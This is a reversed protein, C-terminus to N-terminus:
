ISTREMVFTQAHRTAEPATLTLRYVSGPFNRQMRADTVPIEEWACALAPDFRLTLKGSRVAGPASVPQERLMFVWTVPLAQALAVTDCLLLGDAWRMERTLERVGAEPPYAEAIDMRAGQADLHVDRARYRAGCPQEWAGILPVNHNRSRTNLLTYRTADNFTRATYVMNGLDILQPEGDIYVLCTGVDNHNHNEANHGGKIAAYMGAREQAWVQLDPLLVQRADSAPVAPADIRTFLCNLMRSCEPTDLPLITTQAAAVRAGFAALAPDGIRVGYTYIREGDLMPQADCDAFNWYYSDAIHARLPFLGIQRIKPEHYFDVRGGTAHRVLELCDLLSAGAKNWYAAGEDCGGDEPMVNLYADLMRMGRALGEALRADDREWVLLALMVNSIIWPTWNNVDKRIMGMWWFDDHQFFPAFVRHEMELRVRRRLLPTVGDLEEELLYCAMSLLAATQAAFLDVYPNEVDPLPYTHSGPHSSGNHASIGWFSEECICWLGDVVDDTYQGDHAICAAMLACQLRNRREFHPNEYAKRSGDRVYALFHTAALPPYPTGRQAAGAALLEDRMTPSLGQWAARDTAKPFPVRERGPVLLPRLDHAALYASFM